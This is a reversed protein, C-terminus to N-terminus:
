AGHLNKKKENETITGCRNHLLTAVDIAVVWAVMYCCFFLKTTIDHEKKCGSIDKTATYGSTKCCLVNTAINNILRPLIMNKRAVM